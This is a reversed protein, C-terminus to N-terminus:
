LHICIWLLLVESTCPLVMTPIISRPPTFQLSKHQKYVEFKTSTRYQCHFPTLHSQLNQLVHDNAPPHWSVSFRSIPHIMQSSVVHFSSLSFSRYFFFRWPTIIHGPPLTLLITKAGWLFLAPSSCVLFSLLRFLAIFLKPYSHLRWIWPHWTYPLFIM